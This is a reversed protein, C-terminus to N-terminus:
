AVAGEVDRLALPLCSLLAETVPSPAIAIATLEDGLDPERFRTVPLYADHARDAVTHLEAENEVSLIILYNSEEFWQRAIARHEDYFAFAAHAVQAAQLGPTM